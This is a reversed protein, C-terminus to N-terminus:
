ASPEETGPPSSPLEEPLDPVRAPRAKAKVVQPTPKARGVKKRAASAAKAQRPAVLKRAEEAAEAEKRLDKAVRVASRAQKLQAKLWKVQLKAAKVQKRANEVAPSAPVDQESKVIAASKKM